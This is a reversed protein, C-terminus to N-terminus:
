PKGVCVCWPIRFQRLVQLTKKLLPEQFFKINRFTHQRQAYAEESCYNQIRSASLFHLHSLMWSDNSGQNDQMIKPTQPHGSGGPCSKIQRTLTLSYLPLHTSLHPHIISLNAELISEWNLSIYIWKEAFDLIEFVVTNFLIATGFANLKELFKEM